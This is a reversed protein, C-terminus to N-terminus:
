MDYSFTYVIQTKKNSYLQKADESLMPYKTFILMYLLVWKEMVWLM